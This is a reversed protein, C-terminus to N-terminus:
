RNPLLADLLRSGATQEQTPLRGGGGGGTAGSALQLRTTVFYAISYSMTILILGIVGNRITQKAKDVKDSEGGATMWLYGAYLIWAIAAIGLFTFLLRIWAMITLIFNISGGQPVIAGGGQGLLGPAIQDILNKNFPNSKAAPNDDEAFVAPAILLSGLMLFTLFIKFFKKM